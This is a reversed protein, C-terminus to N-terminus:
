CQKPYCMFDNVEYTNRFPLTSLPDITNINQSGFWISQIEDFTLSFILFISVILLLAISLIFLNAKEKISKSRTQAKTESTHSIVIATVNDQTKKNKRLVLEILSDAVDQPSKTSSAIEVISKNDITNLGDSAIIVKDNPLLTSPSVPLDIEKIKKRGLSSTLAQLNDTAKYEDESIRGQSLLTIMKSNLSHEANLKLLKNNRVLYLLSDGVSVWYLVKSQISVAVLTTGMDNLNESRGAEKLINNNAHYLANLLHEPIRQNNSTKYFEGFSSVAVRSAVDGGQHGGMGDALVALLTGNDEHRIGYSDEQYARSGKHSASGVTLLLQHQESPMNM